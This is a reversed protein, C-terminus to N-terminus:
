SAPPWRAAPRTSAAPAVTPRAMKLCMSRRSWATWRAGACLQTSVIVRRLIHFTGGLVSDVPVGSQQARVDPSPKGTSCLQSVFRRSSSVVLYKYPSVLFEHTRHQTSRQSSMVSTRRLAGPEIMLVACYSGHPLMRACSACKNGHADLLELALTFPQGAAVSWVDAEDVSVAGGGGEGPWVAWQAAPAPVVTMELIAEIDFEKKKSGDFFRLDYQRVGAQTRMSSCRPQPASAQLQIDMSATCKPAECHRASSAEHCATQVCLCPRVEAPVPMPMLMIQAGPENLEARRAKRMWGCSVKGTLTTVHEGDRPTANGGEDFCQFGIEELTSGAVLEGLQPCPGVQDAQCPVFNAQLTCYRRLECSM